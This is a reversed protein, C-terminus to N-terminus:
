VQLIDPPRQAWPADMWPVLIPPLNKFHQSGVTLIFSEQIEQASVEHDYALSQNKRRSILKRMQVTSYIMNQKKATFISPIL